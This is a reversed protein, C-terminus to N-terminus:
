SKFLGGLLLVIVFALAVVGIVPLLAGALAWLFGGIQVLLYLAGAILLLSMIITFCGNM